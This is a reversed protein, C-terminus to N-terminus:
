LAILRQITGVDPLEMEIEVAVPKITQQSLDDPWKTHRSGDPLIVTCRLADIQELIVFSKPVSESDTGAWRLQYVQSGEFRYGRRAPSGGGGDLKLFSFELRDTDTQLQFSPVVMPSGAPFSSPREVRQALDTEVIQLVNAIDRWRQFEAAIRERSEVAMAVARYGMIGLIAFIVLAVLLEILTMGSSGHWWPQSKRIATTM